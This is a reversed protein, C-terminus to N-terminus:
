RGGRPARCGSGPAQGAPRAASLPRGGPFNEQFAAARSDLVRRRSRGLPVLPRSPGRRLLLLVVM